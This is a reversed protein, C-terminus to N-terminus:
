KTEGFLEVEREIRIGTADFVREAIEDAFVNVEDATAGARAVVIVPQEEYLRVKGKSFGKLTLIHDLIWALSVKVMGNDQPFLPLGSFRLALSDALERSIIPNKFFSGATGEEPAHPFKKMRIARVATAVDSPTELSVGETHARALDPYALNVKENKSLNLAVCVIIATRHTKFFSTRYAFEAETRTVRGGKGTVADFVDAYEFVDALEAGYAGINQVAAGGATGPIGALNEIGFLNRGSAVDVIKEWLAGAGAILLTKDGRDEFAIDDFAIKMVVGEVGDDPVLVNSGAGLPYLPLNHDRAYAITEKIEEESSVERFIRALGGIRFTTFPALLVHEREKM